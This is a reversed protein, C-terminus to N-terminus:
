SSLQTKLTIVTIEPKCNIRVRFTHTGLGRNTYQVMRGVQYRGHPYKKFMPGRFPGVIPLVIQGGHSHGSLQLAFRGTAASIDAFDPEHALLVASSGASLIGLVADLDDAGVTIDDVGAIHLLADGRPITVVDNQLEIVGARHLTLRVRGVDLWHDHNGMVATVGDRAQFQSLGAELDELVGDLVYSVFDGTIAIMDPQQANVLQVVGHLREATMWHGMHIDSIHVLRYGDFALPLNPISVTQPVIEFQHPQFKQRGFKQLVATQTRQWSRRLFFKQPM